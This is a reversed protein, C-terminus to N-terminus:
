KIAGIIHFYVSIVQRARCCGFCISVFYHTKPVISTLYHTLFGVPNKMFTFGFLIKPKHIKM